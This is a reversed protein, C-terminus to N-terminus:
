FIRFSGSKLLGEGTSEMRSAVNVTDGFLCFRPMTLGVVGGAVPGSHLGIRVQLLHDPLHPIKYCTLVKFKHKM